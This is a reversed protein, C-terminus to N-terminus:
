ACVFVCEKVCIWVCVSESMCVCACVSECVFVSEWVCVSVCVRGRVCECVCMVSM